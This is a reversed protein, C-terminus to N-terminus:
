QLGHLDSFSFQTELDFLNKACYWRIMEPM